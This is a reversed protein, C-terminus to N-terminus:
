QTLLEQTTNGLLKEAMKEILVFNAEGTSDQVRICFNLGSIIFNILFDYATASM